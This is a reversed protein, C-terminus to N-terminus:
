IRVVYKAQAGENKQREELIRTFETKRELWAFDQLCEHEVSQKGKNTVGKRLGQGERERETGHSERKKGGTEGMTRM